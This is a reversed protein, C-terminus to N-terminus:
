VQAEKFNEELLNHSSSKVRCMYLNEKHCIM